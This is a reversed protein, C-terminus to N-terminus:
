KAKISTCFNFESIVIDGFVTDTVLVFQIHKSTSRYLHVTHTNGHTFMGMCIYPQIHVKCVNISLKGSRSKKFCLDGRVPQKRRRSPAPHQISPPHPFLCLDSSLAETPTSGPLEQPMASPQPALSPKRAQSDKVQPPPSFFIVAPLGHVSKKKTKQGGDEM